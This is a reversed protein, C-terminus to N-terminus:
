KLCVPLTYIVTVYSAFNAELFTQGFASIRPAQIKKQYRQHM